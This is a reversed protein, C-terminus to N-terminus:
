GRPSHFQARSFVPPLLILRIPPILGLTPDAENLASMWTVPAQPPRALSRKTLPPPRKGVRNCRSLRVFRQRRRMRKSRPASSLSPNPSSLSDLQENERAVARLRWPAARKRRARSLM